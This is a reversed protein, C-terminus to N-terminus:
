MSELLQLPVLMIQYVLIVMLAVFSYAGAQIVISIRKILRSWAEEQREMADQLAKTMNQAHMGIRWCQVFSANLLPQKEFLELIDEGEELGQYLERVCRYLMGQKPLQILFHFAEKTSIGQKTLALLYGSLTYSCLDAPLSTLKIMVNLTFQYVSAHHASLIVIGLACLLFLALLYIAGRLIQVGQVLLANEHEMDFSQMLQPIVYSSFIYLTAFAFCFLLIPYSTQQILKKRINNEFAELHISCDIAEKISSLAFFFRLHKYFSGKQGTLLLDSIEMGQELYVQLSVDPRIMTIAQVLPYGSDLLAYLYKWEYM